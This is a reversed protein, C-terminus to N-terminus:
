LRQPYPLHVQQHMARAPVAHLVPQYRRLGFCTAECIVLRRQSYVYGMGNDSLSSSKCTLTLTGKQKRLYLQCLSVPIQELSFATIFCYVLLPAARILTRM